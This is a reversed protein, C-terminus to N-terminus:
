CCSGKKKCRGNKPKPSSTVDPPGIQDCHTTTDSARPGHSVLCQVTPSLESSTSTSGAYMRGKALQIPPRRYIVDDCVEAFLVSDATMLMGSLIRSKKGRLKNNHYAIALGLTFDAMARSDSDPAATVLFFPTPNDEDKKEFVHAMQLMPTARLRLKKTGTPGAHDIVSTIPQDQLLRMGCVAAYSSSSPPPPSSSSSSSSSSSAPGPTVPGFPSLEKRKLLAQEDLGGFLDGFNKGPLSFITIQHNSLMSPLGNATFDRDGERAPHPRRSHRPINADKANTTNLGELTDLRDLLARMEKRIERVESAQSVPISPEAM